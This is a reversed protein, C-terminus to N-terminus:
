RVSAVGEIMRAVKFRDLKMELAIDVQPKGDMLGGIMVRMPPTARSWIANADCAAEMAEPSGYGAVPVAEPDPVPDPMPFAPEDAARVTQRRTKSGPRALKARVRRLAEPMLVAKIFSLAPKKAHTIFRVRM